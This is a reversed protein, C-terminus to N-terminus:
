ALLHKFFEVRNRGLEKASYLAEDAEAFISPYNNHEDRLNSIGISATVKIIKNEFEVPEQAIIKRIDDAISISTQLDTEPLIVVIEEGGYRGVFDTERQSDKIRSSIQRLVEDGAMHGYTDNINKFHDLDIIM